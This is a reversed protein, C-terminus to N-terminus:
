AGERAIGAKSSAANGPLRKLSGGKRDRGRKLSSQEAAKDPERGQVAELGESAGAQSQSWSQASTHEHLWTLVLPQTCLQEPRPLLDHLSSRLIRSLTLGPVDQLFPQQLRREYCLFPLHEIGHLGAYLHDPNPKPCILLLLSLARRAHSLPCGSILMCGKKLLLQAPM